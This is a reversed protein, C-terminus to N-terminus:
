VSNYFELILYLKWRGNANFSVLRGNDDILRLDISSLSIGGKKYYSIIQTREPEYFIVSNNVGTLPFELIKNTYVVNQIAPFIMDAAIANSKIIISTNGTINIPSPSIAVLSASPTDSTFGIYNSASGSSLVTFATTTHTITLTNDTSSFTVTFNSLQLLIQAQMATALTTGSYNGVPITFNYTVASQTISFTRNDAYLVINSEYVAFDSTATTVTTQNSSFGLIPALISAATITFTSVSGSRITYKYTLSSYTVTATSFGGGTARIAVQLAAALTTPTYTGPAITISGGGINSGLVNNGVNFHFWNFSVEVRDIIISRIGSLTENLSFTPTSVNGSNRFNSDLSLYVKKTDAM